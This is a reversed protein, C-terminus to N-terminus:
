LGFALVFFLAGVAFCVAVFALEEGIDEPCNCISVIGGIGILASVAGLICSVITLAM